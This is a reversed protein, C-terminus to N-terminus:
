WYKEFRIHGVTPPDDNHVFGAEQLYQLMGPESPPPAGPPTYGIMAPNGCLFAHTTKPSLDAGCMEALQGTHFMEQIYQKGVYKPHSPEINFPERTTFNFSRFNACRSMLEQHIHRYAFDGIYRGTTALIIPGRHGDRLLRAAMANHPAEGTGTAMMLVTDDPQIGELVYRGVIRTELSVRDGENLLFLRPTLAPPKGDPTGAERVLTIYFELYDVDDCAALHGEDDLMPCSISYARRALKRLRKAPLMEDQSPEIRPEWNGLGIAVYQGAQFPPIPQDPRIRFRSLNEHADIRRVIQANYHQQRLQEQEAADPPSDQLSRAL